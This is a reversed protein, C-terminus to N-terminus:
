AYATGTSEYHLGRTRIFPTLLVACIRITELLNYM